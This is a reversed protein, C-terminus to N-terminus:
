LPTGFAARRQGCREAQQHQGAATPPVPASTGREAPRGDNRALQWSLCLLFTIGSRRPLQAMVAAFAPMPLILALGM